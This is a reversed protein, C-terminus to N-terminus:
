KPRGRWLHLQQKLKCRPLVMKRYSHQLDKIVRPEHRDPRLPNVVLVPLPEGVDASCLWRVADIFSIRRPDVRQRRAAEVMVAHVLNYVLCYVALEKQVGEVTRCKVRRMKMTTKLEAFHTEVTWRVAYLEAINERPYRVPDLLTTAITVCRTRQGKCPLCYRMERVRLTEPLMEYQAQSMWRPKVKPKCWDVVQDHRGLRRVFVSSPRGEGGHRRHPRFDVIMRQHIRFLGHVGAQVLLALHAYSCFARDGVLLAGRELLSHLRWTGKLDHTYLPFVRLQHIMGTWADFLGLLKPVPFGCGPKCGAPQGFAKQLAPEDPCITSSGDVLYTRLGCWTHRPPGDLGVASATKALLTQLVELPLRMRAKCYAAPKVPFRALHRLHSMATNAHLIQLIFLHVTTVPDLLRERWDHGAKCCADRIDQDSIFPALDEKIRRLTRSLIAM